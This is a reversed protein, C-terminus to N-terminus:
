RVQQASGYTRAAQQLRFCHTLLSYAELTPELDGRVDEDSGTFRAVIDKVSLGDNASVAASWHNANADQGAPSLTEAIVYSKLGTEFAALSSEVALPIM